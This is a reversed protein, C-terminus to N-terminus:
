ITANQIIDAFGVGMAFPCNESFIPCESFCFKKGGTIKFTENDALDGEVLLNAKFKSMCMGQPNEEAFQKANKTMISVNNHRDGVIGEGVIFQAQKVVQGESGKEPYIKIEIIKM